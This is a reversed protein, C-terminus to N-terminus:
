HGSPLLAGRLDGAHDPIQAIGCLLRENAYIIRPRGRRPDPRDEIAPEAVKSRAIAVGSAIQDIQATIPLLKPGRPARGGLALKRDDVSSVAGCGAAGCCPNLLHKVRKVVFIAM